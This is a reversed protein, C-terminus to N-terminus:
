AQKEDDQHDEDDENNEWARIWEDLRKPPGPRDPYDKHYDRLRHPSGKFDSAPYWTHDEDFGVWKVLYQLKRRYLRSNLIQEVEWEQNDNIIVPDPPEIIQGPLPDNAALRLKDPSFVDHIQMNPPLDLRYSQGIKEMIPFPGTMQNDLKRSPRDTRYNKLSLWVQDGVEFNAERRHADAAAKHAEQKQAISTKAEEWIQEMTKANAQAQEMSLREDRPTGREIPKWDFSTRPEYGCDIFFPTLGTTESPLAAAAFDIMPLLEGWDDQHHNIFPRLRNVIHQNIIETQGDTQAHYATSLKLKVGLIRSFERWFASIFQPGRDSVITSPPGRHRYVNAIFLQAMEEANTTKYCPMSISRKSLRDVVIFAADFGKKDKPFSRFDMAIHNWPRDAIPLPQLLGPTKDRPNRARQCKSCNRVYREVDRRWTPWYYRSQVLQGTKTRGPHATSIQSHIEDLLRTRLEPDSDPVYLREKYLLLGDTLNWDEDSPNNRCHEREAELVPSERNSRLVQDIIHVEPDVPKIETTLDAQVKSDVNDPKLFIQMRHDQRDVQTHTRSLADALTNQKGPRYRILFYFQSLFEAWRAQRANLKKTTMFYELSRHDTYINFRERLQLGELEARWEQLSRIIALMEKDHIEYNQEAASMSKSFYSIPHWQGGEFQQSLVGAVVGNSADTELKTPLDPQYHRLVPANSLRHKLEDFAAQCAGDWIFPVNNRTLRNLHKAIQSYNKIFRRYFNCFGLFSQVGRVTTPVAWNCVVATKEPDVEIGDTTLIFGLYKTRTVHFECKRISAQLGAERLRELVKKVHMEHDFENESYILLDDVFATVFRDLYDMLTENIFRQFAAPGNTLGFPVVNYKYTGYRTRFTTLDEATPDLRIRHFGQRIDLKTFIKAKSLREMLEDILPIPYRDKKTISNLKRYDVCFRLGGGPKRAMLIPSAFPANSPGIFGKTLNDIIYDRAATLEEASQKYLPGYGITQEPTQGDELEIRYDSRPRYPPMEDSAQKSFVDAYEKYQKPLLKGILDDEVANEMAQEVHRKDEIARDIEHLSTLFIEAHKKRAQRHFSTAGIVAIDIVDRPNTCPKRSRAAHNPHFNLANDKSEPPSQNTLENTTTRQCDALAHKMKEMDNKRDGAETRPQSPPRKQCEEVRTMKADRREVDAQHDPNPTPRKLIRKPLPRTTALRVEDTPVCENPWILRRNRVDMWVDQEALWRRGIIMDHQGLDVLLFTQNLFRRNDIILHLIIAHTISPGQRGNFGKTEATTDLRQIKTDYFRAIEVARQRDIFLSGNAGTDALTTMPFSFGNLAIQSPVNFSQGGLLKSLDIEAVSSGM